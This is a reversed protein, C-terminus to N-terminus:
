EEEKKAERNKDSANAIATMDADETGRIFGAPAHQAEVVVLTFVAAVHVGLRAEEVVDVAAQM